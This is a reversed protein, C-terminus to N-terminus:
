RANRVVGGLTYLYYARVLAGTWFIWAFEGPRAFIEASHHPQGTKDFLMRRWIRCIGEAIEQPYIIRPETPHKYCASNNVVSQNLTVWGGRSSQRRLIFEHTQPPRTYLHYTLGRIKEDDETRLMRALLDSRLWTGTELSRDAVDARCIIEWALGGRFHGSLKYPATTPM